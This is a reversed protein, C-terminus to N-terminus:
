NSFLKYKLRKFLKNAHVLFSICDFEEEKRSEKGRAGMVCTVVRHYVVFVM